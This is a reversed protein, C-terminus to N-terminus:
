FHIVIVLVAPLFVSPTFHGNTGKNTCIKSRVTIRIVIMVRVDM